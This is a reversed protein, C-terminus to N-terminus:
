LIVSFVCKDVIVIETKLTVNLDGRSLFSKRM